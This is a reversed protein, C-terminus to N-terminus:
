EAEDMRTSLKSLSEQALDRGAEATNIRAEALQLKEIANEALAKARAESEAARGQLGRIAAAVQSVLDLAASTDRRSVASTDGSFSLVNQRLEASASDALPNRMHHGLRDMQTKGHDAFLTALRQHVSSPAFM